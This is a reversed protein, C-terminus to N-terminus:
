GAVHRAVFDNWTEGTNARNPTLNGGARFAAGVIGPVNVRVIRKDVGGATLYSRALDRAEYAFAGGVDPQRGRLDDVHATVMREALVSSDLPQVRTQNPVLAIPPRSLFGLMTWILQHFQTSRIVVNAPDHDLVTREAAQKSKYYGLPIVDSGVIGPYVVRCTVADLLKATGDGDVRRHHRPDTACHFVVSADRVAEDIGAGTALDMTVDAGTRGASRHQIRRRELEAVVKRGLVGRAGTVVATV